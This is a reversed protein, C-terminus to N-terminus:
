EVKNAKLVVKSLMQMMSNLDQIEWDRLERRWTLSQIWRYGDVECECVRIDVNNSVQYLWLFVERLRGENLQLDHWFQIRTGDEDVLQMGDEFVEVLRAKRQQLSGIEGWM